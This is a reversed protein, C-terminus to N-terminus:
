KEALLERLVYPISKILNTAPVVYMKQALQEGALGHTFVALQVAKEITYGQSIIGTIIGTLADGMGGSAMAPSGTSNFYCIGEPTFIMTYRNKLVIYVKHEVAKQLATEIRKWWSDHTGFLRDFEKMHPTFVSNEPVLKLLEQNEGIMNIADADIVMPKKFNKLVTKLLELSTDNNCLGPGIGIVKFKDWDLENLKEKNTFMAEPIRVNLAKLGSEPIMASTLGAGCKVCAESAILAAGMTEDDGAIILAHGLMGKHEFPQRAKIYHQMDGKWFWYYPSATSQIYNEDLGINVVKWKKIYPSSIPLLFNLKPRQFTITWDSKIIIDNFLEGECPMGTPVDVAVKYGSFQNIKNVVKEWEKELPKNLGSGLLADILIDCEQYEIEEATKFYFISTDKQQLRQLNLEFDKSSKKSIDAVFVKVQVYSEDILMRAISLGDGGNNGKGCFILIQKKRDTLKEIFIKVFAKSAREMLESSRIPENIVTFQDAEKTQAATLLKLM